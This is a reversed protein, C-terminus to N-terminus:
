PLSIIYKKIIACFEVSKTMVKDMCCENKWINYVSTPGIGCTNINMIFLFTEHLACDKAKATGLELLLMHQQKSQSRQVSVNNAILSEM